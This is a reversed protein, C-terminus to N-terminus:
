VKIDQHPYFSGRVFMNSISLATLSTLDASCFLFHSTSPFLLKRDDIHCGDGGLNKEGEWRKQSWGGRHTHPKSWHLPFYICIDDRTDTFSTLSQRGDCRHGWGQLPLWVDGPYLPVKGINSRLVAGVVKSEMLDTQEEKGGSQWHKLKRNSLRM